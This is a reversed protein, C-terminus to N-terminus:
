TGDNTSMENIFYGKAIGDRCGIALDLFQCQFLPNARGKLVLLRILGIM